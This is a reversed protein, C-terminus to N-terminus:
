SPYLIINILQVVDLINIEGDENIDAGELVVAAPSLIHNILLKNRYIKVLKNEGKLRKSQGAALLIAKIM